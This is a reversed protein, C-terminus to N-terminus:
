FRRHELRRKFILIEAKTLRAMSLNATRTLYVKDLNLVPFFIDTANSFSQLIVSAQFRMGRSKHSDHLLLNLYPHAWIHSTFSVNLNQM